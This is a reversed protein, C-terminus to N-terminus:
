GRYAATGAAWYGQAHVFEAPLRDLLHRELARVAAAEGAVFAQGVGAPTRAARVADVLRSGPRGDRPLWHVDAGAPLRLAQRDDASPVEIWATTAVGVPAAELIAAIAPLATEDGALWRWPADARLRYGDRPGSFLITRGVTASAAWASAPGDDGHIVFDIDLVGTLPDFRRVTYARRVPRGGHAVPFTAVLWAAPRGGAVRHLAPGGFSVRRVHPTLDRTAVVTADVVLRETRGTEM